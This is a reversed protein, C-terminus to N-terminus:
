ICTCSRLPASSPALLAVAYMVDNHTVYFIINASKFKATEVWVALSDFKIEWWIKRSYLAVHHYLSHLCGITETKNGALPLPAYASYESSLPTLYTLPAKYFYWYRPPDPSM